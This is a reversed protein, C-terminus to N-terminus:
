WCCRSFFLYIYIYISLSLSLTNKMECPERNEETCARSWSSMEGDYIDTPGINARHKILGAAKLADLAIRINEIKHIKQSPNKNYKGIKQGTLHEYLTILALGDQLGTELNRCNSCTLTFLKLKSWLLKHIGQRRGQVKEMVSVYVHLNHVIKWVIVIVKNTQEQRAQATCQAM